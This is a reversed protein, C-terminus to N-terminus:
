PTAGETAAQTAPATAPQTADPDGGGPVMPRFLEAPVPKEVPTVKSGPVTTVLGDVIVRDSAAIGEPIARLEGFLAGLKVTRREVVDDPGALLLFKVNQDTGVAYDPVLLAPYRGSGAVRIRAFFGPTLYSGPNPFVGRAQLTGTAPDVKNDVFDVLGRHSFSTENALELYTPIPANRASVRKKERDLQAYKLISREDVDVYCYMPDLSEITTLLTTQGSGGNILNGPTVIKKSVRGSIPAVVECWQLNLRSTELAAKAGDLVAEAQQVSAAANDYEAKAVANSKLEEAARGLQINALDLQAQAKIVDATKSDFDAKFPRKDIVFLMDGKKVVGGEKFPADVIQGSVRARVEVFEPSELHGTFEDWEIVQRQLPRNVTVSPAPPPSAAKGRECGIIGALTLLLLTAGLTPCPIAGWSGCQDSLTQRMGFERASNSLAGLVNRRM